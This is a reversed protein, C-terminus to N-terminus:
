KDCWFVLAGGWHASLGDTWEAAVGIPVFSSSALPLCQARVLWRRGVISKCDNYPSFTTFSCTQLRLTLRRSAFRFWRYSRRRWRVQRDVSNYSHLIYEYSQRFFLKMNLWIVSVVTSNKFKVRKIAYIEPIIITRIISWIAFLEAIIITNIM